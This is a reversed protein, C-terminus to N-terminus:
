WVTLLMLCSIMALDSRVYLCLCFLVSFSKRREFSAESLLLFSLFYRRISNVCLSLPVLILPM